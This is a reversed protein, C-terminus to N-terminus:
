VGEYTVHHTHRLVIMGQSDFDPLAASEAERTASYEPSTPPRSSFSRQMLTSSGAHPEPANRIPAAPVSRSTCLSIRACLPALPLRALPVSSGPTAPADASPITLFLRYPISM